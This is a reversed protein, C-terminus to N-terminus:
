ENNQSTPSTQKSFHKLEKERDFYFLQSGSPIMQKLHYVFAIEPFYSENFEFNPHKLLENVNYVIDCLTIYSGGGSITNLYMCVRGHTPNVNPHVCKNLFRVRPNEFPYQSLKWIELYYEYGEYDSGKPGALKFFISLNEIKDGEPDPVIVDKLNPVFERLEKSTQLEEIAKFLFSYQTSKQM